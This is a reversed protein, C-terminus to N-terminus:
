FQYLTRRQSLLFGEAIIGDGVLGIGDVGGRQHVTLASAAYFM